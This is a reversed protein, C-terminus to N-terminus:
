SFGRLNTRFYQRAFYLKHIIWRCIQFSQFMSLVRFRQKRFTSFDLQDIWAKFSDEDQATRLYTLYSEKAKEPNLVWGIEKDEISRQRFIGGIEEDLIPVRFTKGFHFCVQTGLFIAELAVATNEFCHLVRAKQIENLFDNRSLAYPNRNLKPLAQLEQPIEGRYYDVYKGTYVIGDQSKEIRPLTLLESLNTSAIHIIPGSSSWDRRITSSYSFTFANNFLANSEISNFLENPQSLLFWIVRKAGLLNKNISEPYIIIPNLEQSLHKLYKWWSIYQPSKNKSRFPNSHSILWVEYGWDTLLEYLKHLVQTGAANRRPPGTYIYFVSSM